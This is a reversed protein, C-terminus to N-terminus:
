HFEPIEHTKHKELPIRIIIMFKMIRLQFRIFELNEQNEKDIRINKTIKTIRM